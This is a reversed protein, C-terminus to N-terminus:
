SPIGVALVYVGVSVKGVFNSKVVGIVKGATVSKLAVTVSTSGVLDGAYPTASVVPAHAFGTLNVEFTQETTTNVDTESFVQVYEGHIRSGSTLVSGNFAPTKIVTFRNNTPQVQEVLANITEVMGYIYSVDLPQGTDPVPLTKLATTM